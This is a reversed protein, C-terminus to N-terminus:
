MREFRTSRLLLGSKLQASKQARSSRVRKREQATCEKASKLQASKQARSSHVRKREQATCEKASKLQASKQSINGLKHMCASTHLSSFTCAREEHM